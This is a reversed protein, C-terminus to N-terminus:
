TLHSAIIERPIENMSRNSEERGREREGTRQRVGLGDVWENLHNTQHNLLVRGKRGRGQRPLLLPRQRRPDGHPRELAGRPLHCCLRRPGRAWPLSRSPPASPTGM